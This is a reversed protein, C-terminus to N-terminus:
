NYITLVEAKGKRVVVTYEFHASPRGDQTVITWRDAATMVKFTGANVMPEIALTMGEKLATGKGPKGYNPVQPDEHLERGVGHGVLDRVVSFGEAEVLSQVAHAIDGIRNGEVAQEVARDLSEKTVRMLRRKEDTVNGVPFTYAGDGFFGNKKAGVDISVIEGERLVRSGPIGHVVESDISICLTAPFLNKPDSGYGKFAPEANCSRIYDEAIADLQATSVGPKVQTGILKIVEGVIRCSERMFEIEAPSKVMIAM